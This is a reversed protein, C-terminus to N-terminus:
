EPLDQWEIHLQSLDGLRDQLEAAQAKLPAGQVSQMAICIWRQDGWQKAVIHLTGLHPLQTQLTLGVGKDLQGPQEPNQRWADERRVVAPLGSTLHGRWEMAGSILCFAAQQAAQADPALAALDRAWMARVDDALSAHESSADSAAAMAQDLVGGRQLRQALRNAAFLPSQTLAAWLGQMQGQLQQAQPTTAQPLFGPHGGSSSESGQDMAPWDQSPWPVPEGQHSSALESLWQAIMPAGKANLGAEWEFVAAAKTSATTSPLSPPNLNSNLTHAAPNDFAPQVWQLAVRSDLAQAVEPVGPVAVVPQVPSLDQRSTLPVNLEPLTSPILM